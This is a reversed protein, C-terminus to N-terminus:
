RAAAMFAHPEPISEIYLMAARTNTDRALYDLLDAFGVDVQNGVSIFHSFGIGERLSWDLLATCLAGSQSLFALSGAKPMGNAFSASLCSAPHILGLCNPGLVRMGPYARYAEVLEAELRVGEAGLERFGATIVLVARIGLEGCERVLGPISSSPTCLIALEIRGPCERSSRYVQVGSMEGGKANVPYLVGSYGLGMLNRFVGTGVKGAVESAGVVAVSRPALMERLVLSGEGGLECGV